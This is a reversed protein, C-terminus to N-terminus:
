EAIKSYGGEYFYKVTLNFQEQSLLKSDSRDRVTERAGTFCAVLIRFCEKKEDPSFSYQDSVVKLIAALHIWGAIERAPTLDRRFGDEWQEYTRAYVDALSTVLSLIAAREAGEFPPQQFPGQKLQAAKAYVPHKQGQIQILVVGPSLEAKPIMVTKGTAFDHYPVLEPRQKGFLRALFRRM